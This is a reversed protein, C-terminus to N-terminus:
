ITTPTSRSDVVVRREGGVPPDLMRLGRTFWIYNPSRRLVLLLAVPYALRAADCIREHLGALAVIVAAILRPPADADSDVGNPPVQLLRLFARAVRPQAPDRPDSDLDRFTFGRGVATVDLHQELAQRLRYVKLSSRPVRVNYSATDITRSPCPRLM